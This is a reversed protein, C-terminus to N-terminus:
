QAFQIDSPVHVLSSDTDQRKNRCTQQVRNLLELLSHIKFSSNVWFNVKVEGWALLFNPPTKSCKQLNVAFNHKLFHLLPSTKLIFFCFCFCLHSWVFLGLSGFIRCQDSAFHNILFVQSHSSSSQIKM